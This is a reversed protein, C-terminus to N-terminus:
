IYLSWIGWYIFGRLKLDILYNSAFNNHIKLDLLMYFNQCNDGLAFPNMTNVCGATLVFSNKEICMSITVSHPFIPWLLWKVKYSHLPIECKFDLSM